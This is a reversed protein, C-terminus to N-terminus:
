FPASEVVGGPTHTAATTATHAPASTSPASTDHTPKHQQLQSHTTTNPTLATASAAPVLNATAATATVTPLAAANTPTLTVAPDVIHQAPMTTADTRSRLGFFIALGVIAFVGLAAAALGLTAPRAVTRTGVTTTTAPPTTVASPSTAHITAARGMEDGAAGTILTHGRPSTDAITGGKANRELVAVVEALTGPRKAKDPSLMRGILDLMEFPLGTCLTGLPTIGDRTIIKLVQGISDAQTPRIGALCEYLIVGLAWIDARLDIDKDGYIQEPAMYLPTGLMAGTGTLAGTAATDGETATMKAIGFDLVKVEMGGGTRSLFVNDPKLDRHIIGLAHASTVASIVPLMIAILETLPISRERTIRQGLSEGELLDMVMVPLGDEVEIVDHIEVVNPHRVACAARAERLFRQRVAKDTAHAPRLAKLAVPRRTVLQVASWVVGMGGEGILQDLRYRGGVIDGSAWGM